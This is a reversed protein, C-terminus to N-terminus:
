EAAAAPAHSRRRLSTATLVALLLAAASFWLAAAPQGRDLMLGVATPAVAAGADLGSYVFGFVRGTAGAPTAGRVLMDRSPTTAGMAFGALALVGILQPAALPTAAVVLVLAAAVVLGGAVVLDHRVGRDAAFSGALIGLSSGLLLSTLAANAAALDTGRLAALTAPLFNQLDVQAISLLVFYSFCLLIPTSTFVAAVSGAPRSGHERATRRGDHLTPANALLVGLVALGALGAIVLAIRWSLLTALALMTMPALAWGINGGLTHIGYARGLRSREVSATLISYDAPHFVSNGMGALVMLPMLTWYGPALGCLLIAGAELALGCFLVRRAGFRDVLFGAPTQSLGSALYFLTTLVGLEAYGVGFSSRLLPFLPPLALQFFHSFTHAIGILGIVKYPRRAAATARMSM